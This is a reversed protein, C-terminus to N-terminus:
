AIQWLILGNEESRSEMLCSFLVKAAYVIANRRIELDNAQIRLM